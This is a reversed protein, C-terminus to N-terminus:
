PLKKCEAILTASAGLLELAALYRANGSPPDRQLLAIAARRAEHERVLGRDLKVRGTPTAHWLTGGDVFIDNSSEEWRDDARYLAVDGKTQAVVKGGSVVWLNRDAIVIGVIASDHAFWREAHALDIEGMDQEYTFGLVRTGDRGLLVQRRKSDARSSDSWAVWTYPGCASPAIVVDRAKADQKKVWADAAARDAATLPSPMCATDGLKRSLDDLYRRAEPHPQNVVEPMPAPEVLGADVLFAAVKRRARDAPTTEAAGAVLAARRKGTIGIMALDRALQERDPVESADIRGYRAVISRRDAARQLAAAAPCPAVLLDRGLCGYFTEENRTQGALVLHGKVLKVDALNTIMASSAQRGTAFRVRILDHSDIAGGEHEHDSYVIDLARDGDLDVQALLRIRGQDAWEMWDPSPTSTDEAIVEIASTVRLLYNRRTRFADPGPAVPERDQSLDLVLAGSGDKCGFTVVFSADDTSPVVPGQEGPHAADIWALVRKTVQEREAATTPFCSRAGVPLLSRGDATRTRPVAARLDAAIDAHAVATTALVLACTRLTM